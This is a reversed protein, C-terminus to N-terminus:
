PRYKDKLFLGSPSLDAESWPGDMSAKPRLFSAGEDKTSLSWTAWSLNHANMFALWKSATVPYPGGRGTYNSTGWETVFIPLGKEILGAVIDRQGQGDSEKEADGCYFHLTYMINPIGLPDSMVDQPKSCYTPTGVIIVSQPDNARIVPIVQEAYARISNWEVTPENYIEYIVNPVSRYKASMENFFAKAEPLHANPNGGVGHWDIIVYIGNAIAADVIIEERTKMVARNELYGGEEIYMAGRVMSVQYQRVLNSVTAKSWPYERLHHASMGRLQVPNGDKDCLRTGIVRLRGHQGVVGRSDAPALGSGPLAFSQVACISVISALRAATRFGLCSYRATRDNM